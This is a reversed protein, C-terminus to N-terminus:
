RSQPTAKRSEAPIIFVPDGKSATAFLMKAFGLPVGICGHTARGQRVNSGHIAVGDDTLRLMYPM